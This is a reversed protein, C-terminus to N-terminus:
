PRSGAPSCPLAFHSQIQKSVASPQIGTTDIRLGPEFPVSTFLGFQESLALARVPDTLKHLVHRSENRVRSLWEERTCTLQVYFVTGNGAYIPELMRRIATDHEAAGRYVATCILDVNEHVAETFVDRWIQRILRFYPASEHPFITRTLDVALHNHFLRFGTRQALEQGVTLKGVGPPGYLYVLRM